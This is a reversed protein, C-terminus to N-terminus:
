AGIQRRGADPLAHLLGGDTVVGNVTRLLVGHEDVPMDIGHAVNEAVLMDVTEGPEANRTKEDPRLSLVYTIAAPDDPWVIHGTPWGCDRCTMSPQMYELQLASTCHPSACDAIWRGWNCRAFTVGAPQLARGAVLIPVALNTM